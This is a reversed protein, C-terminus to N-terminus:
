HVLSCNVHNLSCNVHNLSCSVHNLSYNVNRILQVHSTVQHTQCLGEFIMSLLQHVKEGLPRTAEAWVLAVGVCDAEFDAM